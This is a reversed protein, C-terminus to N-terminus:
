ARSKTLTHGQGVIIGSLIPIMPFVCPTLALLLGFGFFTALILPFSGGKLLSGIRSSDNDPAPTAAPADAVPASEAAARPQAASTAPTAASAPGPIPLNFRADTMPLGGFLTLGINKQIPPYCVGKESCGQYAAVVNIPLESNDDRRLRIVAQFSHHYVETQGFNPDDKTDGQPLIVSDIGVGGGNRLSFKIKNRYLYYNEAITFNALLTNKDIVKITLKFAQEPPLFEPQGGLLKKLFSPKADGAAPALSSLDLKATQTQPPYCVGADACGQSVSKLVMQGAGGRTYPLRVVVEHRYTEVKGFYDDQKVKGAPLQPAGLTVGSPEAQFKLKEKYLYYGEAIQYHAEITHEDVVRASFKFAQEPELLDDGAAHASWSCVLFFVTLLYRM